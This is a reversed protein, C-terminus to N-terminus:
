GYRTVRSFRFSGVRYNPQYLVPVLHNGSASGGRGFHGETFIFFDARTLALGSKTM